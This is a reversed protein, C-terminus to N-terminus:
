LKDNKKRETIIKDIFYFPIYLILLLIGFVIMPIIFLLISNLIWFMCLATIIPGGNQKQTHLLKTLESKSIFVKDM